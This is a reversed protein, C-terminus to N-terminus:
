ATDYLRSLVRADEGSVRFSVITGAGTAATQLSEDLQSIAQHAFTIPVNFKRAEELFPHHTLIIANASYGLWTTHQEGVDFKNEKSRTICKFYQILPTKAVGLKGSSCTLPIFARQINHLDLMCGAFHRELACRRRDLHMVRELM